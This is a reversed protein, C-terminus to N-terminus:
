SRRTNKVNKKLISKRTFFQRKVTSAINKKYPNKFFKFKLFFFKRRHAFKKYSVKLLDTSPTHKLYKLKKTHYKLFYLRTLKKFKVLNKRKKKKFLRKSHKRKHNTKLRLVSKRRTLYIGQKYRKATVRIISRLRILQM